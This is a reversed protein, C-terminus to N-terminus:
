YHSYSEFVSEPDRNGDAFNCTNGHMVKPKSTHQEANNQM